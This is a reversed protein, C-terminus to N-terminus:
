IGEIIFFFIDIMPKKFITYSSLKPTEKGIKKPSINSILKKDM